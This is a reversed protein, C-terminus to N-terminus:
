NAKTLDQIIASPVMECKFKFQETMLLLLFIATRRLSTPVTLLAVELTSAYLESMKVTVSELFSRPGKKLTINQICYLHLVHWWVSLYIYIYIYIIKPETAVTSPNSSPM